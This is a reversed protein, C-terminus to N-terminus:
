GGVGHENGGGCGPLVEGTAGVMGEGESDVAGEPAPAAVDVALEGEASAVAAGGCWGAEVGIGTPLVEESAVEAGEEDVFVAGEPAHAVVAVTAEADGIGEVVADLADGEVGVVAVAVDGAAVGEAEAKAVVM